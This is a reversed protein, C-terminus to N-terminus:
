SAEEERDFPGMVYRCKPCVMGIGGADRGAGDAYRNAGQARKGAQGERNAGSPLCSFPAKRPQCTAIRGRLGTTELRHSM